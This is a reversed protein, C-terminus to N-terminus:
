RFVVSLSILMEQTCVPIGIAINTDCCIIREILSARMYNVNLPSGSYVNLIYGARWYPSFLHEKNAYQNTYSPTM